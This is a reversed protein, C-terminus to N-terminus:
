VIIRYEARRLSVCFLLSGRYRLPCSGGALAPSARTVGPGPLGWVVCCRLRAGGSRLRHELAWPLWQLRLGQPRCACHLLAQAPSSVWPGSGASQSPFGSRRPAWAACRSLLRQGGCGPLRVRPLWPGACGLCASLCSLLSAEDSCFPLLFKQLM